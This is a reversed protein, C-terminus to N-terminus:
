PLCSTFHDVAAFASRWGVVPRWPAVLSLMGPEPVAAINLLQLRTPATDAATSLSWSSVKSFILALMRDPM